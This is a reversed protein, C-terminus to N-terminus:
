VGMAIKVLVGLILIALGILAKNERKLTKLDQGFGILIKTAEYRWAKPQEVLKILAAPCDQEEEKAKDM